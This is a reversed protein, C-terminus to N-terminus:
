LYTPQLLFVTIIKSFPHNEAQHFSIVPDKMHCCRTKFQLLRSDTTNEAGGTRLETILSFGNTFSVVRFLHVCM